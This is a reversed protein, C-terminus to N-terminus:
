HAVWRRRRWLGLGIGGLGLLVLSAPEPVFHNPPLVIIDGAAGFTLDDIEFGFPEDGTIFFSIGKIVNAGSIDALGYFEFGTVSNTISGLINGDADYAQITTSDVADFFGGKLGVGAVPTSFLVAIPGNFIPTGSLIPPTAGPASDGTTFTVPAAPDLALPGDPTTDFLTVPFSLSTSQGIFHGGFTVTVAGLTPVSPFTYTPNTTSLPVEDFTIVPALPTFSGPGLNILQAQSSGNGIVLSSALTLAVLRLCHRVTTM